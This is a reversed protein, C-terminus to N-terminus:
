YLELKVDAEKADLDKYEYEIKAGCVLEDNYYVEWINQENKAKAFKSWQIFDIHNKHCYDECKKELYSNINKSMEELAMKKKNWLSNENFLDGFIKDSEKKDMEWSITGSNKKNDTLAFDM